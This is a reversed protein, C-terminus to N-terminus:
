NVGHARCDGGLCTGLVVLGDPIVLMFHEETKGKPRGVDVNKAIRAPPAALLGVSFIREEGAPHAHCKNSAHLPVIRLIEPYDRSGFVIRHVAAGLRQLDSVTPSTRKRVPRIPTANTVPM